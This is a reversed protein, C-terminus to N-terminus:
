VKLASTAREPSSPETGLLWVTAKLPTQHGRRADEPVPYVRPAYVYLFVSFFVCFTIKKFFFFLFTGFSDFSFLRAHSILGQAGEVPEFFLWSYSKSRETTKSKFYLFFFLAINSM